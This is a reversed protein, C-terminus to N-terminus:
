KQSTSIAFLEKPTAGKIDDVRMFRKTDVELSNSVVSEDPPNNSSPFLKWHLNYLKRQIYSKMRPTTGEIDKVNM